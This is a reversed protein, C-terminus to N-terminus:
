CGELEHPARGLKIVTRSAMEIGVTKGTAGNSKKPKLYGFQCLLDIEAMGLRHALEAYTLEPDKVREAEIFARLRETPISNRRLSETEHRDDELVVFLEVRAKPLRMLRAAEMTTLGCERM